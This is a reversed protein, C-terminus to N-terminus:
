ISITPTISLTTKGQITMINFYDNTDVEKQEVIRDKVDMATRENLIKAVLKELHKIDAPPFGKLNLIVRCYPNEHNEFETEIMTITVIFM